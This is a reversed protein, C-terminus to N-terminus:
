MRLSVGLTTEAGLEQGSFQQQDYRLRVEARAGLRDTLPIRV